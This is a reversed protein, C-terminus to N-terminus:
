KVYGMDKLQQTAADTYAKYGFQSNLTDIYKSYESIPQLGTCFNVLQENIYTAADAQNYEEPQVVLSDYIPIRPAKSTYELEKAMVPFKVKYYEEEPRGALQYLYFYAGEQNLMDTITINGNADLNYDRGKVGYEVLTLGDGTSIYNFLEIIRDLKQPDKEMTKPIAFLIGNGAIDKPTTYAGGPGKPSPLQVWEAKPNVQKIQDVFMQKKLAFIGMQVIGIKGQIAAQQAQPNSNSFIGPDLVGAAKMSNIFVLADKTGAEEMSNIVKGDKIYISGPLPVGFAGFIDDFGGGSPINNFLGCGGYGYTDDKGNKDPDNFTFAKAVDLLEGTTAPMNLQLNDLWDKRIWLTNSPMVNMNQVLSYFKEGIYGKKMSESAMNRYDALKDLYPTLDMILNKKAEDVLQNRTPVQFIDPASGGALRVNLQNNYDDGAAGSEMHITINLAKELGTRIIDEDGAPPNLGAGQLIDITLNKSEGAATNGASTDASSDNGGGCGAFISVVMTAVILIGILKKIGKM